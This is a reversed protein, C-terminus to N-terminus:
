LLQLVSNGVEAPTDPSVTVRMFVQGICTSEAITGLSRSDEAGRYARNDGLLYVGGLVTQRRIQMPRNPDEFFLNEDRAWKEIGWVLSRHFGSEAELFSIKGRYDKDPAKGNVYLNNRDTGIQTGMTAVVRSLVYRGPIRPHRCLFIDGRDASAGKWVLVQDGAVITPAMANHGVEVVNVFFFKLVGGVALSVLLLFGLFKLLGKLM